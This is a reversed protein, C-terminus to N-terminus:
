ISVNWKRVYKTLYHFRKLSLVLINNGKSCHKISKRELYKGLNIYTEFSISFYAQCTRWENQFSKLM